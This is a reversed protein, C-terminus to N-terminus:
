VNEQGEQPEVVEGPKPVESAETDAEKDQEQPAPEIDGDRLFNAATPEDLDIVSGKPWAQGRKFLGAEDLVVYPKRVVPAASGAADATSQDEDINLKHDM